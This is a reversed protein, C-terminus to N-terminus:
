RPPTQKMAATDLRFVHMTRYHSSLELGTVSVQQPPQEGPLRLPVPGRASSLHELHWLTDAALTQTDFCLAIRGAEREWSAPCTIEGFEVLGSTQPQALVSM